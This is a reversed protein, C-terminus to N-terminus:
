SKGSPSSSPNWQDMIIKLRVGGGEVLLRGPLTYGGVTMLSSPVIRWGQQMFGGVPGSVLPQSPEEANPIGLICCRLSKLPVAFGLRAKLAAEPDRALHEIGDGENIYILDKQLIISVLGQSLPGTLRLRDQKLDHSWALDAQWSDKAAHVGIRGEMDWVTLRDPSSSLSSTEANGQLTACGSFGLLLLIVVFLRNM